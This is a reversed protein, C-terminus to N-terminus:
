SSPMSWVRYKPLTIYKREKWCELFFPSLKALLMFLYTMMISFWSTEQLIPISNQIYWFFEQKLHDLFREVCLFSIFMFGKQIALSVICQKWLFLFARVWSTHNCKRPQNFSPKCSEQGKRDYRLLRLLSLLLGIINEHSPQEPNQSTIQIQSLGEMGLNARYSPREGDREPMQKEQIEATQLFLSWAAAPCLQQGNCWRAM